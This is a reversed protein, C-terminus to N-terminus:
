RALFRISRAKQRSFSQRRMAVRYSLSAALKAEATAMAAVRSQHVQNLRSGLARDLSPRKNIAGSHGEDVFVRECGEAKLAGLQLALSQDVRSVRPYGVKM